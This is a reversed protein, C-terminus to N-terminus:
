ALRSFPKVSRPCSGNGPLPAVMTFGSFRGRPRVVMYSLVAAVPCIDAGSVGLFVTVGRRFPDTKSAKIRVELYRPFTLSNVRIDGQALHVAPDFSAESPVVVEGSRLFGFFCMCVAGWLMTADFRDPFTEWSSRLSRLIAPTVPLRCRTGQRGGIKRFRKVM